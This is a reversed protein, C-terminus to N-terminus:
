KKNFNKPHWFPETEDIEPFEPPQVEEVSLGDEKAVQDCIDSITWNFREPQDSYIHHGAGPIIQVDVFSNRRLYKINFGTASDVWSRSGYLISMPVGEAIDKVRHVMPYKAYGYPITMSKFASEGSPYQANCHYVYNIVTDDDEEPFMRKFKKKLDPRFRQVLRPGYPGAARLASLPNFPSLMAAVVRAWRPIRFPEEGPPPKENLGWPDALILHRVREPYKLTYSCALFGGLSHGMLIFKSIGIKERWQEIAEIFDNEADAGDSPFDPRSSRGFGLVDVAYVAQRKSLEDFNMAWLGAGSGFGHVLVLPTRAQEEPNAQLTWIHRNNEIPVYKGNIKTKVYRLIQQEAAALLRESTPRWSFWSCQETTSIPTQAILSSDEVTGM